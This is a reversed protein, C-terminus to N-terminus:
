RSNMEGMENLQLNETSALQVKLEGTHNAATQHLWKIMENKLNSNLRMLVTAARSIRCSSEKWHKQHM